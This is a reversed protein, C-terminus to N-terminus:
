NEDDSEFTLIDFEDDGNNEHEVSMALIDEVFLPTPKGTYWFPQLKDDRMEWGYDEYRLMVCEPSTANVWM